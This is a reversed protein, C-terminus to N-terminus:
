PRASGFPCAQSHWSQEQLTVLTCPYVVDEPCWRLNCSLTTSELQRMRRLRVHCHPQVVAVSRVQAANTRLLKLKVSQWRRFLACAIGVNPITSTRMYAVSQTVFRCLACVTCLMHQMARVTGPCSAETAGTTSQQTSQPEHSPLLDVCVEQWLKRFRGGNMDQLAETSSIRKAAEQQQVSLSHPFPM